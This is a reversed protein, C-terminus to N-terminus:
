TRRLLLLNEGRSKGGRVILVARRRWPSALINPKKKGNMEKRETQGSQDKQAHLLATTSFRM